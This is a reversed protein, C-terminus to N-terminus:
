KGDVTTKWGPDYAMSLLLFIDESSDTEFEIYNNEFVSPNVSYKTTDAYKENMVDVLQDSIVLQEKMIDIVEFVYHEAENSAIEMIQSESVFSNFTRGFSTENNLRYIHLSDDSLPLYVREGIYKYYEDEAFEPVIIYKVNCVEFLIPDDLSFDWKVDPYLRQYYLFDRLSYQYVSDYTSVTPIDYYLGENQDNGVLSIRYVSQDYEKLADYAEAYDDKNLIYSAKELASITQSKVAGYGMISLEFFISIFLLYRFRKKTINLVFFINLCLIFFTLVAYRVELSGIKSKIVPYIFGIFFALVFNIISVVIHVKKNVENISSLVLASILLLVMMLLMTYRLSYTFHFLKGFQPSLLLLLMILLLCGLSVKTRNEIKKSVFFQPVLLLPATGCYIGIQYFYYWISRYVSDEYIMVPFYFNKLIMLFDELKWVNFTVVEQGSLRPNLMLHKLSPYWIFGSLLVGVIFSFLMKLSDSFFQKISIKENVWWYRCIWYLLLFVCLMWTFYYNIMLLIASSLVVLGYQKKKLVKETGILLLPAFCYFSMFIPHEIFITVWGSLMFSVSIIIRVSEKINFENLWLSFLVGAVLMKMLTVAFMANPISDTILYLGYAIYAFPDGVMYYAKSAYFNTGLFQNWSWALEGSDLLRFFEQYFPIHQTSWDNKILFVDEIQLGMGSTIANVMDFLYPFFVIGLAVLLVFINIIYFKINSRNKMM